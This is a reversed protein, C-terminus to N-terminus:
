RLLDKAMTILGLSYQRYGRYNRLIPVIRRMRSGSLNGRLQSHRVKETFAKLREEYHEGPNQTWHERLAEFQRGLLLQPESGAKRARLLRALPSTNRALGVQQASHIRYEILPQSIYKLSSYLLLLWAIWGDHIWSAEIPLLLTRLETRFMLTAGTVVNHRLLVPDEVRGAADRPFYHVEAWLRPGLRAGSDDILYGDTFVGGAEPDASLQAWQVALKEPRWIDDQDCLAILEGQCLRIAKEFNKTSGLNQENRILRVRFPAKAAFAEVLTATGDSSRDDCIVLEHPRHTQAAISELQQELYKVGNYTCMAVSIRM